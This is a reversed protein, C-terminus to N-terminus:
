YWANGDGSEKIQQRLFTIEKEHQNAVFSLFADVIVYRNDPDIYVENEKAKQNLMKSIKYAYFSFLEYPYFYNQQTINKKIDIMLFESDQKCNFKKKETLYWLAWVAARSRNPFIAPYVKYLMHSKIGGGIVSYVIYDETDLDSIKLEKYTKIDEYKNKDYINRYYNKGFSNLNTVKKLLETPESRSFASRYKDLEKAQKNHITSHIIPCENKLVTSKFYQPDDKYEELAEENFINFYKERDKKFDELSERIINKFNQSININNKAKFNQIGWNEALKQIDKESAISGAEQSIFEAFYKPFNTKITELVKEVHENEYCIDEVSKEKECTYM